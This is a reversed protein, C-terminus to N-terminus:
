GRGTPTELLAAATRGTAHGLIPIAANLWLWAHQPSWTIRWQAARVRRPWAGDSRRALGELVAIAREEQGGRAYLQALDMLVDPAWPDIELALELLAVAQDRQLMTRFRTRGDLLTEYAAEPRGLKREIEATIRWAEFEQPLCRTADRFVALAWETRRQALLQKGVCRFRRWAEFNRGLLALLPALRAAAELDDPDVALVYEYLQVARQFRGRARARQAENLIDRRQFAQPQAPRNM